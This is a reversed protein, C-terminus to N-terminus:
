PVTVTWTSTDGSEFGDAFIGRDVLQISWLLSREDLYDGSGAVWGTFYATSSDPSIRAHDWTVSRFEPDWVEDLDIHWLEDGSASDFAKVFSITCGAPDNCTGGGSTLLTTGDPSLSPRRLYHGVDRRWNM